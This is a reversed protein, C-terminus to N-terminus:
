RQQHAHVRADGDGGQGACCAHNGATLWGFARPAALKCLCLVPRIVGCPTFGVKAYFFMHQGVPLGLRHTPSQLAFRFLRTNSSLEIKEVLEFPVKKKPNLAVLDTTDAKGAKVEQLLLFTPLTLLRARAVATQRCLQPAFSRTSCAHVARALQQQPSGEWRLLRVEMEKILPLKAERVAAEGVRGILYDKLMAKAKASHIANFEDSADQPASTSYQM